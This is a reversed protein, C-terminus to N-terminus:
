NLEQHVVIKGEAIAIDRVLFLVAAAHRLFAQSDQCLAAREMDAAANMAADIAHGPKHRSGVAEDLRALLDPGSAAMSAVTMQMYADSSVHTQRAMKQMARRASRHASM